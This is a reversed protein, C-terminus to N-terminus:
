AVLRPPNLREDESAGVTFSRGYTSSASELMKLKEIWFPLMSVDYRETHNGQLSSGTPVLLPALRDGLSGGNAKLLMDTHLNFM